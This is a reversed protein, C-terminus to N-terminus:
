PAVIYGDEPSVWVVQATLEPAPAGNVTVQAKFQDGQAVYTTCIEKGLRAAMATKIQSKVVVTEEPTLTRDAVALRAQDIDESRAIGCVAGGKEEVESTVAMVMVPQAQVLVLAPNAIKGDAGFDYRAIARCTKRAADQLYCQFKGQHAEALPDDAAEAAATFACFALALPIPRM